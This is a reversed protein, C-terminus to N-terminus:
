LLVGTTGFVFLVAGIAVIGICIGLGETGGIRGDEEEEKVEAATAM